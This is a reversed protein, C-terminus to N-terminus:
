WDITYDNAFYKNFLMSQNAATATVQIVIDKPNVWQATLTTDETVVDTSFNWM